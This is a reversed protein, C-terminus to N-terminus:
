YYCFVLREFCVFYKSIGSVRFGEVVMVINSNSSVIIVFFLVM